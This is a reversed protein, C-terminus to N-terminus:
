SRAPGASLPTAGVEAYIRGLDTAFAAASFREDFRRRAGRGLRERLDRDRLVRELAAALSAADGPETLLASDGDAVDEPIGDCSSAVVPRGAQMAELMALSGSQERRSPPVYVDGRRLYAVADPVVGALVTTRGLGLREALRRNAAVLPGGGVLCARFPVSRATLLALADLLVDIGKRPDHRSVAVVLPADRPELRELGDLEVAGHGAGGDEGLFASEAAYLARHLPLAHGFKATVLRRVSEYNYLV